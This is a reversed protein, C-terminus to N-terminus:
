YLIKNLVTEKKKFTFEIGLHPEFGTVPPDLTAYEISLTLWTYGYKTSNFCHYFGQIVLGM